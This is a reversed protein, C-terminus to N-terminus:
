PRKKGIMGMGREKRGCGVKKEAGELGKKKKGELGKIQEGIVGMEEGRQRARFVKGEGHCSRFEGSRSNSWSRGRDTGM